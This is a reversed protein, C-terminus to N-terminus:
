RGSAPRPCPHGDEPPTEPPHALAARIAAADGGKRHAAVAATVAGLMQHRSLDRDLFGLMAERILPPPIGALALSEGGNVATCVRQMRRGGGAALVAALDVEPVGSELALALAEWLGGSRAVPPQTYGVKVAMDRAQRIRAVRAELAKQLAGPAVGKALGEDLKTELFAVPLGEGAVRHLLGTVAAIGAESAGARRLQAPRNTAAAGDEAVALRVALGLVVLIAFRM